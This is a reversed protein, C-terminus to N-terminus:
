KPRVSEYYSHECGKDSDTVDTCHRQHNEHRIHDSLLRQLDHSVRSQNTSM